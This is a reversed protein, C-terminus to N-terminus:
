EFRQWTVAKCVIGALVCGRTTMRQGTVEVTLKYTLGRQPDFATGSYLGGGDPRVTMVLTDGAKERPTGPKIWLNTACMNSGCSAIKVRANGDGRAWQGTMDAAAVPSAIAFALMALIAFMLASSNTGAVAKRLSVLKEKASRQSM